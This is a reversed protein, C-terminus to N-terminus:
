RCLDEDLPVTDTHGSLVLGGTGKGRTAILNNKLNGSPSPSSIFECSFGLDEFCTALYDTVKTNSMDITTNASSVSPLKILNDLNSILDPFHASM